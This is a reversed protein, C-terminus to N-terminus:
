VYSQVLEDPIEDLFCSRGEYNVRTFFVRDTSRTLAVYFNRRAEWLSSPNGRQSAPMWPLFRKTCFPLIVTHFELGKANFTTMLKVASESRLVATELYAWDVMVQNAVEQATAPSAERVSLALMQQLMQLRGVTDEDLVDIKEDIGLERSLTAFLARPASHSGLLVTREITQADIWECRMLANVLLITEESRLPRNPQSLGLLCVRILRIVPCNLMDDSGVYVFPIERDTLLTILSDFKFRFAALVAISAPQVGACLSQEIIEVIYEMEEAGSEAVAEWLEGQTDTVLSRPEQVWLRGPNNSIVAAAASVIREPCRYNGGLYEVDASFYERYEELNELRADRWSYIMQDADAVGFVRGVEPDSLERLFDMQIQSTDQLEDIFIHQHSDQFIRRVSPYDRLLRTADILLDDFDRM